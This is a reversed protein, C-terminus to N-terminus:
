GYGALNLSVFVMRNKMTLNRLVKLKYGVFYGSDPRSESYKLGLSNPFRDINTTQSFLFLRGNCGTELSNQVITDFWYLTDGVLLEYYPFNRNSWMNFWDLSEM